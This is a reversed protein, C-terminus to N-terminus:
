TGYAYQYATRQWFSRVSWGKKLMINFFFHLSPSCFCCCAMCAWSLAVLCKGGQQLAQAAENDCPCLALVSFTIHWLRWISHQGRDWRLWTCPCGAAASGTCVMYAYICCANGYASVMCLQHNAWVCGLGSGNTSGIIPLRTRACESM